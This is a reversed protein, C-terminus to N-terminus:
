MRELVDQGACAAVQPLESSSGRERESSSKSWICSSGINKVWCGPLHHRLCHFGRCIDQRHPKHVLNWHKKIQQAKREMLSVRETRPTTTLCGSVSPSYYYRVRQGWCTQGTRGWGTEGEEGLLSHRVESEPSATPSRPADHSSCLM